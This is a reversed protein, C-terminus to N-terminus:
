CYCSPFEGLCRPLLQESQERPLRGRSCNCIATGSHCCWLQLTGLIAFHAPLTRTAEQLDCQSACLKSGYQIHSGSHYRGLYTTWMRSTGPCAVAARREGPASTTM